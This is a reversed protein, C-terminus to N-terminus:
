DALDLEDVMLLKCDNCNISIEEKARVYRECRPCIYKISPRKKPEEEEDESKEIPTFSKIRGEREIIFLSKNLELDPLLEKTEPRLSTFAYGYKNDGNMKEAYLGREYATDKFKKNHWYGNRTVDKVGNQINHLHVMEHIMTGVIEEESRSIYEACLTIEYYRTETKRDIWVPKTTCWGLTTKHRGNNQITLVPKEIENNFVRENLFEFM